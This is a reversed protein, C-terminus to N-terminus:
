DGSNAPRNDLFELAEVLYNRSPMEQRQNPMVIVKTREVGAERYTIATRRVTNLAVDNSGAVFVYPNRRVLDIQSPLTDGWAVAGGVFLGGKFTEPKGTATIAAVHAGGSFGGVYVRQPDVAYTKALLLPTMILRMIRENVAEHDGAGLVGAWILNHEELAPSYERRSGGWSGRHTLFVLAGAPKSADYNRPVYLQWELKEDPDFLGAVARAGDEGLLELPTTYVRFYGTRPGDDGLAPLALALVLVLLFRQRNM